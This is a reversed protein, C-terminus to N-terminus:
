NQEKAKIDIIVQETQESVKVSFGKKHILVLYYYSLIILGISFPVLSFERLGYKGIINGEWGFFEGIMWTCNAVIWFDVALNHILESIIRRTQYTILIAVTLTPIIMIVGPVRLNLAWCADKLLWLLIHLNEIKRFKYPIHYITHNKM